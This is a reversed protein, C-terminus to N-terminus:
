SRLYNNVTSLAVMMEKAIAQKSIGAQFLEKAREINKRREEKKTKAREVFSRGIIKEKNRSARDKAIRNWDDIYEQYNPVSLIYNRATIFDDSVGKVKIKKKVSSDAIEYVEKKSNVNRKRYLIAAGPIYLDKYHAIIADSKWQNIVSEEGVDGFMDYPDKKVFVWSDYMWRVPELNSLTPREKILEKYTPIKKLNRYLIKAGKIFDKKAQRVLAVSVNEVGNMDILNANM